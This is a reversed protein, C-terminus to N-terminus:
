VNKKKARKVKQAVPEILSDELEKALRAERLRITKEERAMVITHAEEEVRTRIVPQAQTMNFAAEAIQRSKSHTESM